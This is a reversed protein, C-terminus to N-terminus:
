ADSAELVEAATPAPRKRGAQALPHYGDDTPNCEECELSLVAISVSRDFNDPPLYVCIFCTM